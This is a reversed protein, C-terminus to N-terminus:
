NAALSITGFMSDPIDYEDLPPAPARLQEFTDVSPPLTGWTDPSAHSMDILSPMDVRAAHIGKHDPLSAAAARPPNLDLRLQEAGMVPNVAGVLVGCLVLGTLGLFVTKM